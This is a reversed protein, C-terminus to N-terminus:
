PAVGMSQVAQGANQWSQIAGVLTCADPREALLSKATLAATDFPLDQIHNEM